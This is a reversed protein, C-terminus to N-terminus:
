DKYKNIWFNIDLNGNRERIKDIFEKQKSLDKFTINYSLEFMTGFDSTKVHKLNWRTTYEVMIDNFANDYNLSEPVTIKVSVENNSPETLNTLRTIILLVAVILFFITAILLYGLGTLVGTVISITIFTLEAPKLQTSRFRTIAFVGAFAFGITTRAASSQLGMIRSVLVVSSVIIPYLLLTLPLSKSIGDRKAYFRYLIVILLGLVVAVGFSALTSLLDISGDSSLVSDLASLYIM